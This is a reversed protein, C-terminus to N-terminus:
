RKPSSELRERAELYLSALEVWDAPPLEECHDELFELPTCGYPEPDIGASRFDKFPSDSGQVRFLIMRPQNTGGFSVAPLVGSPKGPQWQNWARLFASEFVLNSPNFDEVGLHALGALFGNGALKLRQQKTM